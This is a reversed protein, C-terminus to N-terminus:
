KAYFPRVEVPRECAITAKEAWGLAADHDPAEIVWFGGMQPELGAYPGASTATGGPEARVVVAASAPRLGDAFVWAEAAQLEANFAGVQAFQRQVDPSEFDPVYDEDHWVSLLFRAM